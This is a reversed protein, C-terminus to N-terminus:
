PDGTIGGVLYINYQYIVITLKGIIM